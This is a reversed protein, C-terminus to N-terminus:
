KTIGKWTPHPITAYVFFYGLFVCYRICWIHMAVGDMFLLLLLMFRMFSREEGKPNLLFADWCSLYGPFVYVFMLYWYIILVCIILHKLLHNWIGITLLCSKSVCRGGYVLFGLAAVFSVAAFFLIFYAFACYCNCTLSSCNEIKVFSSQSLPFVLVLDFRCYIDEWHIGCCQQWRDRPIGLYLGSAM